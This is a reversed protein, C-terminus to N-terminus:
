TNLLKAMNVLPKVLAEAKEILPPLKEDKYPGETYSILTRSLSITGPSALIRPKSHTFTKAAQRFLPNLIKVIAKEDQGQVRFQRDFDADGTPIDQGTFLCLAKALQAYWRDQFVRLDAALPQNFFVYVGMSAVEVSKTFMGAMGYGSMAAGNRRDIRVLYGEQYGRYEQEVDYPTLHKLEDNMRPIEGRDLFFSSCHDCYDFIIDSFALLNVKKMKRDICKPCRRSPFTDGSFSNIGISCYEIDGAMGTAMVNLEGKELFVGGCDPCLDTSIDPDQIPTM